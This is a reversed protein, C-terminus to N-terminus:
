QMGAINEVEKFVRLLNEAWIKQIQEDSYGRRVLELTINGMQSVDWCGYIRGGGDFDSGIGVHDIGAIKVIHDIHDVFDSVSAYKKPYKTDLENRLERVIINEEETRESYDGYKERIEKQQKEREPHQKITRIYDSMLCVQIVGGNKALEKLMEDTM